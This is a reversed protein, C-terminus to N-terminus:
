ESLRRDIAAVWAVKVAADQILEARLRAPDSEAMAEAHEEDSILRWTLTGEEAAKDAAARCRDAIYLRASGGTGDPHNQEGWKADQRAREAQVEALIAADPGLTRGMFVSVDLLLRAALATGWDDSGLRIPTGTIAKEIVEALPKFAALQQDTFQITM